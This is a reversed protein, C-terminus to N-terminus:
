KGRISKQQNTTVPRQIAQPAETLGRILDPAHEIKTVRSAEGLPHKSLAQAVETVGGLLRSEAIRTVQEITIPAKAETLGATKKIAMQKAEKLM